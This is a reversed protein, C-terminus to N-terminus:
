YQKKHFLTYNIKKINPSLKNANFWESSRELEMNVTSSFTGIDSHSQFLNTDGMLMITDLVSSANPLDNIYLLFLLTGLILGQYWM